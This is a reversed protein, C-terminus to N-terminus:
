SRKALRAKHLEYKKLLKNRARKSVESGDATHTPIGEDDYASFQGEYQGQRFLELLPVSDLDVHKSKGPESIEPTETSVEQAPRQKPLCTTWRDKGGDVKSDLLQIGLQPLEEDRLSDCSNLIRQMANKSITGATSEELAAQRITSRFRVLTELLAQEGGVVVEQRRDVTSLSDKALGAQVTQNTFGVLALLNRLTSLVITMPETTTPTDDNLQSLYENGARVMRLCQELFETGNMDKHLAELGRKRANQCTSYFQHDMDSWVKSSLKQEQQINIWAQGNILFRLIQQRVQRANAITESSFTAPGRYSGSLGLCWLRFDDSPSDMFSGTVVNTEGKLYDQITIFNKLSKSMKMGDIHLHGTHIWHPIWNGTQQHAESQAIENTHHPFKLDVGGAHVMFQHTAEFQRQVAEIMASCEIHWGPRGDGWPSPWALDEHPKKLKWLVFDRPDKKTPKEMEVKEDDSPSSSAERPNRRTIEFDEVVSSPALKGYKTISGLRENYAKVHFYVGDEAPYAMGQDVLREIFPVIHSTVHETVRTVVHPRLCNLADLDKWFEAEFKRALALPSVQQEAAAALIKDDVDTINMVFLPPPISAQGAMSAEMVRRMIDIWVYTRAHGMHAPAYTTPGCTYWALGRTASHDQIVTTYVLPLPQVRESLSDFM